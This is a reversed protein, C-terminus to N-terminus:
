IHLKQRIYDKAIKYLQENLVQKNKLFNLAKIQMSWEILNEDYNVVNNILVKEVM